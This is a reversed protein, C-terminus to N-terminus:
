FQELAGTVLIILALIGLAVALSWQWSIGAKYITLGLRGTVTVVLILILIIGLNKKM